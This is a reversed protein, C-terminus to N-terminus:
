LASHECDARRAAALAANIPYNERRRVGRWNSNLFLIIL